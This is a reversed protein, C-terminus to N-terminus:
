SAETFAGKVKGKWSLSCRIRKEEQSKKCTWLLRESYWDTHSYPKTKPMSLLRMLLFNIELGKMRSRPQRRGAESGLGQPCLHGDCFARALVVGHFAAGFRGRKWQRSRRQGTWWTNGTPSTEIVPCPSDEGGVAELWTEDRAPGAHVLLLAWCCREGGRASQANKNNSITTLCWLRRTDTSMGSYQFFNCISM